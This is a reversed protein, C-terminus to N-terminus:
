SARGIEIVLPFGWYAMYNPFSRYYLFFIFIPFAFVMSNLGRYHRAYSYLLFSSAGLVLILYFSSPLAVGLDLLIDSLGVGGPVHSPSSPLYPVVVANWWASPSAIMFPLNPLFFSSTMLSLNP